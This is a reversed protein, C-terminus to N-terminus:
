AAQLLFRNQKLPRATGLKQALDDLDIPIGERRRVQVSNRGCLRTVDAGLSGDLYPFNMADAVLAIPILLRCTLPKVTTTGSTLLRLEEPERSRARGITSELSRWQMGAIV